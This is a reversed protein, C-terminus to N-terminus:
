LAVAALGVTRTRTHAHTAAQKRGDVRGEPRAPGQARTSALITGSLGVTGRGGRACHPGEAAQEAVDQQTAAHTSIVHAVMYSERPTCLSSPAVARSM